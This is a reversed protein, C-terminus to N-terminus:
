IPASGVFYFKAREYVMERKDRDQKLEETFLCYSSKFANELNEISVMITKRPYKEDIIEQYKRENESIDGIFYILEAAEDKKSLDSVATNTHLISCRASYLDTASCNLDGAPLLYDICWKKYDVRTVKENEKPRNLSALADIGSYILILSPMLLGKKTCMDIALFQNLINEELSKKSMVKQGLAWSRPSSLSGM